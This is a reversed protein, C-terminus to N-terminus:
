YHGSWWQETVVKNYTKKQTIGLLFCVVFYQITKVSVNLCVGLSAWHRIWCNTKMRPLTVPDHLQDGGNLVLTITPSTARRKARGDAYGTDGPVECSADLWQLCCCCWYTRLANLFCQLYGSQQAVRCKICTECQCEEALALSKWFALTLLVLPGV